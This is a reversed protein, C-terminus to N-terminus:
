RWILYAAVLLLFGGGMVFAYNQVRGTQMRKLGRYGAQLTGAVGNVLGDVVYQDFISSLWSLGLTVNRAGHVGIGDVVRADFDWLLRGGGKGLGEVFAANYIEDVYYKNALVRYAGAFREALKRPAAFAREGLYFRAAIFIGIIAVGVSVAM